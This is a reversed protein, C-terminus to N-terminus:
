HGDCAVGKCSGDVQGIYEVRVRNYPDINNGGHWAHNCAYVQLRAQSGAKTVWTIDVHNTHWHQAWQHCNSNLNTGGIYLQAHRHSWHCHGM